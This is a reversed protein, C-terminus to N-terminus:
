THCNDIISRCNLGSALTGSPVDSLLGADEVGPEAVVVVGRRTLSAQVMLSTEGTGESGIWRRFWRSGFRM